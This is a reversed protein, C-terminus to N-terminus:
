KGYEERTPRDSVAFERLRQGAVRLLFEINGLLYRRWLRQPEQYLRYTWELGMERLWLPARPIRGSYFDFLGGVGLASAVGLEDLHEAIWREQKPAGFAVLLVDANSDHIENIVSETKDPEFYGHHFGAVQLDPYNRHIWQSVGEAIGPRGGLLYISKRDMALRECLFPLLDTGNVNQKVPQGLLSGAIKVGIGDGFCLDSRDLVSTYASDCCALNVCDANVFSVQLTGKSSGGAIREVAEPLTLNDIRVGLLDVNPQHGSAASGYCLAPLARLLLSADFVASSKEVYELDSLAETGFDINTRHRLWRLGVLGPKVRVRGFAGAEDWVPDDTGAARPGVLSMEGTLLHFIEPLRRFFGRAFEFKGFVSGNAGVVHKRLPRGNIAALAVLLPIFVILLTVGAVIDLARKGEPRVPTDICDVRRGISDAPAQRDPIGLRDTSTAERM